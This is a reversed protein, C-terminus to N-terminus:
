FRKDYPLDVTIIPKRSKLSYGLGSLFDRADANLDSLRIPILIYNIGFCRKLKYGKHKKPATM